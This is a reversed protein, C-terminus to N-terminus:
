QIFPKVDIVFKKQSYLFFFVCYWLIKILNIKIRSQESAFKNRSKKKHFKKFINLWNAIHKLKYNKKKRRKCPFYDFSETTRDKIYEMTREIIISKEFSSHLHHKLNLFTCAQPPYWTWEGDDSTSVSHKDHGEIVKSLFCREAVLVNKEKSITMSLIEKDKPEIAVWWLWVLEWSGIKVLV